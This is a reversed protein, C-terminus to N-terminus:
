QGVVTRSRWRASMGNGMVRVHEPMSAVVGQSVGAVIGSRNLGPHAMLIDLM